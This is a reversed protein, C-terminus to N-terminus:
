PWCILRIMIPDKISDCFRQTTGTMRWLIYKVTLQAAAVQEPSPKVMLKPTTILV